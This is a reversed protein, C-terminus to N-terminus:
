LRWRAHLYSKQSKQRHFPAHRAFLKMLSWTFLTPLSFRKGTAKQPWRVVSGDEGTVCGVAPLPPPCGSATVPATNRDAPWDPVRTAPQRIPQKSLGTDNFTFLCITLPPDRPVDRSVAGGIVAVRCVLAATGRDTRPVFTFVFM